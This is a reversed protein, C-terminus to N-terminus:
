FNNSYIKEKLWDPMENNKLKTLSHLLVQIDSKGYARKLVIESHNIGYFPEVDYQSITLVVQPTLPRGQFTKWIYKDTGLNFWSNGSALEDYPGTERLYNLGVYANMDVSIGTTVFEYGSNFAINELVQKLHLINEHNDSDRSNMCRSSGIYIFRLYNGGDTSIGTQDKTFTTDRYNWLFGIFFLLFFIILLYALEKKSYLM